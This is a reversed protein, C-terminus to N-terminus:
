YSPFNHKWYESWNLWAKELVEQSKTETIKNSPSSLPISLHAWLCRRKVLEKEGLFWPLLNEWINTHSQVEHFQEATFTTNEQYNICASLYAQQQNFGIGYYGYKEQYRINVPLSNDKYNKIHQKVDGDNLYRMEINLILKNQQYKYHRQSILGPLQDAEAIFEHSGRFQWNPLPVLEPLIYKNNGFNDQPPTLVIKGLILFAGTFTIALFPMRYKHWISTNNYSGHNALFKNKYNM